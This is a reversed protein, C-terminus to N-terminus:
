RAQRCRGHLTRYALPESTFENLFVIPSSGDSEVLRRRIKYDCDAWLRNRVGNPHDPDEYSVRKQDAELIHLPREPTYTTREAIEARANDVYDRPRCGRGSM